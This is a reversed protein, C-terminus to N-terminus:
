RRRRRRRRTKKRKRKRRRRRTKRGGKKWMNDWTTICKKKENNLPKIYNVEWYNSPITSYKSIEHLKQSGYNVIKHYPFCWIHNLEPTQVIRRLFRIIQFKITARVKEPPVDIGQQQMGKFQKTTKNFCHNKGDEISGFFHIHNNSNLGCNLKKIQDKIFQFNNKFSECPSECKKDKQKNYMLNKVRIKMM